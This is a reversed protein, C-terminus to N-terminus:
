REIYLFLIVIIIYQLLLAYKDWFLAINWITNSWQVKQM